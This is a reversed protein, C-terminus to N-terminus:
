ESFLPGKLIVAPHIFCVWGRAQLQWKAGGASVTQLSSVLSTNYSHAQEKVLITSESDRLHILGWQKGGGSAVRGGRGM